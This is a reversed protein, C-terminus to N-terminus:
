PKEGGPENRHPWLNDMLEEHKLQKWNAILLGIFCGIIIPIPVIFGYLFDEPDFIALTGWLFLTLIGALLGTLAYKVHENWNWKM